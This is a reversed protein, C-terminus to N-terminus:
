QAPLGLSTQLDDLTSASGRRVRRRLRGDALARPVLEALWRLGPVRGGAAAKEPGGAEGEGAGAQGTAALMDLAGDRMQGGRIVDRRALRDPERGGALGARGTATQADFADIAPRELQFAIGIVRDRPPPEARHTLGTDEAGIVGLAQRRRKHVTLRGGPLLTVLRQPRPESAESRPGPYREQGAGDGARQQPGGDRLEQRGEAAPVHHVIRERVARDGAGVAQRVPHGERGAVAEVQGAQDDREAAVEQTGPQRRHLEGRGPAVTLFQVGVRRSGAAQHLQLGM